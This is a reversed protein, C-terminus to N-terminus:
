DMFPDYHDDHIEPELLATRIGEATAQLRAIVETSGQFDILIDVTTHSTGYNPYNKTDARINESLVVVQAQQEALQRLFQNAQDYVKERDSGHFDYIQLM